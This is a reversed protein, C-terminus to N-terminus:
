ECPTDLLAEAQRERFLIIEMFSPVFTIITMQCSLLSSNLRIWIKRWSEEARMATTSHIKCNYMWSTLQSNNECNYLIKGQRRPIVLKAPVGKKRLLPAPQILFPAQAGKKGQFPPVPGRKSLFLPERWFFSVLIYRSLNGKTDTHYIGLFVSRYWGSFVAEIYLELFIAEM